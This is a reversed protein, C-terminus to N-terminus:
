LIRIKRDWIEMYRQKWDDPLFSSQIVREVKESAGAFKAYINFVAKEPLNLGLAFINFDTKAIKRKRGNLTLALEDADDPFVLNVNLLDYAPSLSITHDSHHIVSFNKLHMDNNGTLYCFLVLEFFNLTDLGRNTCYQTVLKGVKEYSGKYKHETLFGSIQCFDEIHIKEGKYRDFRKAIYALKGESTPILAHQCTRIKFLDALHMTLDETEPMFQFEDHQPKLIYQGWLGVITLRDTGIEKELDVSLKPQVGTVAIRKNVTKTALEGLINKDLHLGPLSSTGFFKKCCRAHYQGDGEM